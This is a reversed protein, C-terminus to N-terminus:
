RHHFAPRPDDVLDGLDRLGLHGLRGWVWRPRDLHVPPGHDAPAFTSFAIPTNREGGAPQRPARSVFVVGFISTVIGAVEDKMTWTMVQLMQLVLFNTAVVGLLDRDHVSGVAKGRDGRNFWALILKYGAAFDAGATLGMLSQLAIAGVASTASGFLFTFAGLPM